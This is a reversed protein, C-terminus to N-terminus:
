QPHAELKYAVFVVVEEHDRHGGVIQRRWQTTELVYLKIKYM